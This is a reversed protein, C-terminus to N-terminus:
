RFRQAPGYLKSQQVLIDYMQTQMIDLAIDLALPYSKVATEPYHHIVSSSRYVRGGEGIFFLFFFLELDTADM